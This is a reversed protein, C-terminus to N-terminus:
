PTVKFRLRWDRAPMTDMMLFPQDFHFGGECYAGMGGQYIGTDVDYVEVGFMGDGGDNKVVMTIVVSEGEFYEPREPELKIFRMNPPTLTALPVTVTRTESQGQPILPALEKKEGWPMLIEEEAGWAM